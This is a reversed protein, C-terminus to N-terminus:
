TALPVIVPDAVTVKLPVAVTDDPAASGAVGVVVDAPVMDGVNVKVDLAIDLGLELPDAPTDADTETLMTLKAETDGLEVDLTATVADVLEETGDLELGEDETLTIEDNATLGTEDTVTVGLTVALTDDPAASGAVGVRDDAPVMDGVNVKVDLAIVLGLELPDAPTDADTETLTTLEAETDGLEVDLTATVADVLEKTGDLELGEDETLTIEYNATLGTEDAVTVGLTVALTDDPAVSVTVGVRDDVPVMDGVNVKVDLAIVLGLELPDAPTDADTETLTTLEAETDGLEVDLTATVADVLEKTGDLELGEDETLTLEDNATLGTEDTVTVGLTVALTDDPAVSVTVGVRDDAPVMDGVNVKVDLTIDLRLGLAGDPADKDGPAVAELEGSDVDDALAVDDTARVDDGDARGDGLSVGADDTLGVTARVTDALKLLVGLM